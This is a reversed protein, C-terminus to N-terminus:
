VGLGRRGSEADLESYDLVVIATLGANLSLIASAKLCADVAESNAAAHGCSLM